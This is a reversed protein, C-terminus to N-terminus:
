IFGSMIGFYKGLITVDFQAEDMGVSNTAKIIYKGGYVRQAKAMFLKTNNDVSDIRFNDTTVIDQVFLFVFSNSIKM